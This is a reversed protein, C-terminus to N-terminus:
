AFHREKILIDDVDIRQQLYHGTAQEVFPVIGTFMQLIHEIQILQALSFDHQAGYRMNNLVGAVLSQPSNQKRMRSSYLYEKSHKTWWKVCEQAGDHKVLALEGMYSQMRALQELIWARDHPDMACYDTAAQTDKRTYEITRM